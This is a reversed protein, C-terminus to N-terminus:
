RHHVAYRKPFYDILTFPPEGPERGDLHRSYNEIGNCFGMTELMELDYEVRMELRQAELLKGDDKFQRWASACEEQHNPYRAGDEPARDRLAIGAM